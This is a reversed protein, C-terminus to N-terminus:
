RTWKFFGRKKAPKQMVILAQPLLAPDDKFDILKLQRPWNKEVYGRPILTEGYFSSPRHDGGGTPVHIFKGQDYDRLTREPDPFSRALSEHWASEQVPKARLTACFEVFRRAQTTALLIGGPKLLRAFENAWQLQVEENLHSFVSYLYIVDYSEEPLQVPPRPNCVQFRGQQFLRQCLAIVDPDVDMGNLNGARVDKLFFRLMRGWGCGFDLVTSAPTLPHGCSQSYGKVIRYFNHAERLTHEGASGVFSRQLEESPFGPLTVGQVVPSSISGIMTQLWAEDTLDAFAESPEFSM